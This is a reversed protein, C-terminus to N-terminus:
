EVDEEFKPIECWVIINCITSWEKTDLYDSFAKEFDM